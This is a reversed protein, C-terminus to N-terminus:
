KGRHIASTPAVHMRLRPATSPDPTIKERRWKIGPAPTGSAWEAPDPHVWSAESIIFILKKQGSAFRNDLGYGLIEM